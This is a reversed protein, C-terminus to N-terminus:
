RDPLCRIASLTFDSVYTALEDLCDAPAPMDPQLRMLLSQNEAYFICQGLVSNSLLVLQRQTPEARPPFLAAISSAVREGVARMTTQIPEDSADSPQQIERTMLACRWQEEPTEEALMNQLLLLVTRRFRAEPELAVVSPDDLVDRLRACPEFALRVAHVYLARKDDFHYNVAAISANARETIEKVTAREFGVEAFVQGAAEILRRKTDQAAANNKVNAM